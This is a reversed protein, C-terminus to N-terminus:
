QAFEAALKAAQLIQVVRASSIEWLSAIVKTPMGTNHQRLIERNRAAREEDNKIKSNM